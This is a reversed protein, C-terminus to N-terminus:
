NYGHKTVTWVCCKDDIVTPQAYPGCSIQRAKFDAPNGVITIEKDPNNDKDVAFVKDDKTYFINGLNDACLDYIRSTTKHVQVFVNLDNGIIQYIKYKNGCKAIVVPYGNSNVDIRLFECRKIDAGDLYTPGAPYKLWYCERDIGKDEVCEFKFKNFINCRRRCCKCKCKCILRFLHPSSNKECTRDPLNVSDELECPSNLLTECYDCGIKAVEDGRGTGIDIACGPLKVWYRACTLYYTDGGKAVVYILGDYGIDVRNLGYIHFDGKIEFYTDAEFDYEYVKGDAGIFVLFGEPNVGLDHFKGQDCRLKTWTHPINQSPDTCGNTCGPEPINPPTNLNTVTDTIALQSNVDDCDVEDSSESGSNKTSLQNKAKNELKVSFISSSLIALAILASYFKIQNKM